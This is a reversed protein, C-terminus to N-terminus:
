LEERKKLIIKAVLASVEQKIAALPEETKWVKIVQGEPNVLYKWFNWRPEKNTSDVLFRFAPHAESGLVKIKSFIPFTVGYNAKAFSEIDYNSGPESDGFQNCPFALVNFHMPGLEKQLQQLSRYSLETHECQSAVNVVLSAKGRYKELSVTKGKSNQVEFSYFSQKRHSFLKLQLLCLLSTCVLMCTFVVFIRAKPASCKLLVASVSEM